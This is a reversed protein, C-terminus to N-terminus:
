KYPSHLILNVKTNQHWGTIVYYSTRNSLEWVLDFFFHHSLKSLKPKLITEKPVYVTIGDNKESKLLLTSTTKRLAILYQKHNGKLTLCQKLVDDMWNWKWDPSCLSIVAPPSYPPHPVIVMNNNTVFETTKMFKLAPM